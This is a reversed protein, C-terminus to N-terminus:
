FHNSEGTWDTASATTSLCSREELARADSHISVLVLENHESRCLIAVPLLFTTPRAALPDGLELVKDHFCTINLRV